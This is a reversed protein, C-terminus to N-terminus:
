LRLQYRYRVKRNYYGGFSSSKKFEFWIKKPVSKHIYTENDTRILLYGKKNDCSYFKADRIWSSKNTECDDTFVFNADEIVKIIEDYNNYKRKIINGCDVGKCATIGILLTSLVYAYGLLISQLSRIEM